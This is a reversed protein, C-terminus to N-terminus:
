SEPWYNHLLNKVDKGDMKSLDGGGWGRLLVYGDSVKRLDEELDLEIWTCNNSQKICPWDQCNFSQAGIALSGCLIRLQSCYSLAGCPHLDRWCKTWWCKDRRSQLTMWTFTGMYKRHVFQWTRAATKRTANHQTTLVLLVFYITKLLMWFGKFTTNWTSPAYKISMSTDSLGIDLGSTGPQQCPFAPPWNM